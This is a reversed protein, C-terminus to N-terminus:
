SVKSSGSSGPPRAGGHKATSTRTKGGTTAPGGNVEADTADALLELLYRIAHIYKVDGVMAFIGLKGNLGEALRRLANSQRPSLRGEIRIGFDVPASEAVPLQLSVTKHKAM